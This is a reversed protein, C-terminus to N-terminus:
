QVSNRNFHQLKSINCSQTLSSSVQLPHRGGEGRDPQEDRNLIIMITMIKKIQSIMGRLLDELAGGTVTDQADWRHHGLRRDSHQYSHHHSHHYSHHNYYICVVGM